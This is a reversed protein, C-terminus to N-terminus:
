GPSLTLRRDPAIIWFHNKNVNIGNWFIKSLTPVARRIECPNEAVSPGMCFYLCPIGNCAFYWSQVKNCAHILDICCYPSAHEEDSAM